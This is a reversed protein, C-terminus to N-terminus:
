FGSQDVPSKIKVLGISLVPIVFVILFGWTLTGYGNAILKVLGFGDAIVLCFLLIGIGVVGRTLPNMLKHRIRYVAALRENFGHIIGAGTEIFTGFLILQFLITFVPVSLQDLLRSAPIAEYVIGPYHGLMAIYIMVAPLMAIPGGIVGAILAQKKNTFHRACFLIAPVMGINYAAYQMGGVFWDQRQGPLFLNHFIEEGFLSLSWLILAIYVLYLCLSWISFIKEVLGTGFYVITGVATMMIVSGIIPPIGFTQKVLEGAASGVVSVILIMFLVYIIEYAFWGRGLLTSIFSRYEFSRTQRALEFSIALVLSWIVMAVFMGLLGHLPGRLLFFEVLERGTGYGGGIILSQFIFGPLFYTVFINRLLIRQYITPTNDM